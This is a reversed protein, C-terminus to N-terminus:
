AKELQLSLAVVVDQTIPMVKIMSHVNTLGLDTYIMGRKNETKRKAKLRYFQRLLVSHNLASPTKFQIERYKRDGRSTHSWHLM